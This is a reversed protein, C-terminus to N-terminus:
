SNRLQRFQTPTMGTHKKFATNFVSKSNFGSEYLIELITKKNSGQEVLISKSEKIRYSNIFDFFNQKLCSNLIQSLHHPPISVKEALDNLCLSPDLYPKKTEMYRILNNKYEEKIADPLLTKEYKRKLRIENYGSFIEPQKLGKLFILSVFVIFIVEAAIYLIFVNINETIIWLVYELVRLSKWGIFGFLVFNLWSLNIHEITSYINKIEIRYKKLVILSAIAYGFFQLNKLFDFLLHEFSSFRSGTQLIERITDASNIHFKLTILICFFIFPTFHLLYVKKFEFGRKTFSLIYLYLVPVYVYHFPFDIYCLHPFHSIVYSRLEEFHALVGGIESIAKSLLFAALIINSLRRNNKQTLLYFSLILCQFIIIFHLINKIDHPM